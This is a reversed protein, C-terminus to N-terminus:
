SESRLANMRDAPEFTLDNWIQKFKRPFIEELDEARETIAERGEEWRSDETASMVMAVMRADFGYKITAFADLAYM